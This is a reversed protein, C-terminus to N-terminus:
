PASRPGLTDYDGVLLRFPPEDEEIEPFRPVADLFINDALDDNVTSVEGVLVDGLEAQFAHWIGPTLTVSEGPYLRIRGGAGLRRERGDALVAVEADSAPAGDPGSGFLEVALVAGARNIIDETKWAHKHMPCSQGRRVIMAKECYPPRPSGGAAPPAGNRLTFLLLGTRRFEGSGFDTVDWGLRASLIPGIRERRRGFEQPSWDAFPPLAFGFRDIARRGDEIIANIASRKM